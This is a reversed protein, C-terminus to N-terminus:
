NRYNEWSCSDVEFVLSEERFCLVSQCSGHVEGKPESLGLNSHVPVMDEVKAAGLYGNDHRSPSCALEEVNQHELLAQHVVKFAEMLRALTSLEGLQQVM